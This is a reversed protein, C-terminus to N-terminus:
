NPLNIEIGRGVTFISSVVTAPYNATVLNDHCTTIEPPVKIGDPSYIIFGTNLASPERSEVFEKFGDLIQKQQEPNKDKLSVILIGNDLENFNRYYGVKEFKRLQLLRHIAGINENIPLLIPVKALDLKYVAQDLTVQSRKEWDLELKKINEMWDQKAKEIASWLDRTSKIGFIAVIGAAVGVVALWSKWQSNIDRLGIEREKAEFIQERELSDIKVQQTAITNQLAAITPNPTPTETPNGQAVVPTTQRSILVLGMLLFISFIVIPLKFIKMKEGSEESNWQYRADHTHETDHM